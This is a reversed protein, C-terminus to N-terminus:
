MNTVKIRSNTKIKKNNSRIREWNFAKKRRMNGNVGDENNIENLGNWDIRKKSDLNKRRNKYENETKWKENRKGMKRKIKTKM